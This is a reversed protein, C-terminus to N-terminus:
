REWTRLSGEGDAKWQISRCDASVDGRVSLRAKTQRDLVYIKDQDYEAWQTTSEPKDAKLPDRPETLTLKNGGAVRDPTIHAITRANPQPYDRIFWLGIIDSPWCKFTVNDGTLSGYTIGDKGDRGDKGNQGDKGNVGDRGDKGDQGDKGDKVSASRCGTVLLDKVEEAEVKLDIKCSDPLYSLSFSFKRSPLSATRDGTNVLLVVQNPKATRGTIVLRGGTIEIQDVQLQGAAARDRDRRPAATAETVIVSLALGALVGVKLM